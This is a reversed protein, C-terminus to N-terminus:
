DVVAIAEVELMLDDQALAPTGVLTSAPRHGGFHRARIARFAQVRGPSLDRVFANMKVIHAFGAGAADLAIRLNVFVQEVQEDFTTGVVRGQADKAVQGSVYVTRGGAVVAVQAYTGRTLGPPDLYKVDMAETEERRDDLAAPIAAAAERM